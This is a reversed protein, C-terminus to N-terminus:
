RSVGVTVLVGGELPIGSVAVGGEAAALGGRGEGPWLRPLVLGTAVIAAGGAALGLGFNATRAVAEAEGATLAPSGGAAEREHALKLRWGNGYLAGGGIAMASGVGVASWSVTRVWGVRARAPPPGVPPEPVEGVLSSFVERVGGPIADALEAETDARLGVRAVPRAQEVDLLSLSLHIRGGFLSAESALVYPVGLAGGIEALCTSDSECGLLQRQAEFGLLSRIDQGTVVRLRRDRAAEDGLIASLPAFRVPDVEGTTQIDLVAVGVREPPADDAEARASAPGGIAMAFVVWRAAARKADIRIAAKRDHGM